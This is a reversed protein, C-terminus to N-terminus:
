AAKKTLAKVGARKAEDRWGPQTIDLHRESEELWEKSATMPLTHGAAPDIKTNRTEPTKKQAPNATFWESIGEEIADALRVARPGDGLLSTAVTECLASVMVDLEDGAWAALGCTVGELLAIFEDRTTKTTALDHGEAYAFLQLEQKTYTPTTTAKRGKNQKTKSMAEEEKSHHTSRIPEVYV